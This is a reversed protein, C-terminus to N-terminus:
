SDSANQAKRQATIKAKFYRFALKLLVALASGIRLKVAICLTLSTKESCFDPIVTADGPSLPKLDTASELLELIVGVSASLVGFLKATKAADSGGVTIHLWRVETRIRHGLDPLVNLIMRVTELISLASDSSKTGTESADKKKKEKKKKAKKPRSGTKKPKKDNGSLRIRFPGVYLRLVEDSDTQIVAQVRLSLLLAFLLVIGLIICLATM